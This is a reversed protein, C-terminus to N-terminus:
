YTGPLTRADHKQLWSRINGFLADVDEHTHGKMLFGLQVQASYYIKCQINAELYLSSKALKKYPIIFIPLSMFAHKKCVEDFVRLQVLLALFTLVHQNKNERACNDLQLFLKTPLRGGDESLKSFQQCLLRVLINLTLNPDHPWQHLDFYAGAEKGHVILGTLHTRAQWLNSASKEVRKQHPLNTKNQDM